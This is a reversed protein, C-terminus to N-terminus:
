VPDTAKYYEDQPDVTAFVHAYLRALRAIAEDSSMGAAGGRSRAAADNDVNNDDDVGSVVASCERDSGGQGQGGIGLDGGGGGAAPRTGPGCGARPVAHDRTSCPRPAAEAAEAPAAGADAGAAFLEACATAVAPALTVARAGLLRWASAAHRLPGAAAPQAPLPLDTTFGLPDAAAM